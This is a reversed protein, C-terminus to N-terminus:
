RCGSAATWPRPLRPWGSASRVRWARHPTAPGDAPRPRWAISRRGAPQIAPQPACVKIDACGMWRFVVCNVAAEGLTDAVLEIRADRPVCRSPRCPGSRRPPRPEPTPMSCPACPSHNVPTTRSPRTCASCRCARWTVESNHNREPPLRLRASCPKPVCRADRWRWEARPPTHQRGCLGAWGEAETEQLRM